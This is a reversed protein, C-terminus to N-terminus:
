TSVPVKTPGVFPSLKPSLCSRIEQMFEWEACSANSVAACRYILLDSFGRGQFGNGLIPTRTPVTASCWETRQRNIQCSRLELLAGRSSSSFHSLLHM